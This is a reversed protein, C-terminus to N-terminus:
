KVKQISVAFKNRENNKRMRIGYVVIMAIYTCCLAIVAGIALFRLCLSDTFQIKMISSFARMSSANGKEASLYKVFGFVCGAYHALLTIFGALVGDFVLGKVSNGGSVKIYVLPMVSGITVAIACPAFRSIDMRGNAGLLWFVFAYLAAFLLGAAASVALGAAYKEKVEKEKADKLENKEAFSLACDSCVLHKHIERSNKLTVVRRESVDSIVRGCESCHDAKYVGLSDLMGATYDIMERFVKLEAHSTVAVYNADVAYDTIYYKDIVGRIAENISIYDDSYEESDGICCSVELIRSSRKETITMFFGGYIGFVCDESCQMGISESFVVLSKSIM